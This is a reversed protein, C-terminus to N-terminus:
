YGEKFLRSALLAVNTRSALAARGTSVVTYDYDAFETGWGLKPRRGAYHADFEYEQAGQITTAGQSHVTSDAYDIIPPPGDVLRLFNIGAEGGADASFISSIHVSEAFSTRKETSALWAAGVALVSLVLIMLLTTALAFGERNPSIRGRQRAM